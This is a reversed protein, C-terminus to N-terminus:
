PGPVKRGAAAWAKLVRRLVLSVDARSFGERARLEEAAAQLEDGLGRTIRFTTTWPADPEAPRRASAKPHPAPTTGKVAEEGSKFLGGEFRKAM